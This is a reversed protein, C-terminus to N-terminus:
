FQWTIKAYASRKVQSSNRSQIQDNFEVDHDKLLNQGSGQADAVSTKQLSPSTQPEQQPPAQQTQSSQNTQPARPWALECSSLWV